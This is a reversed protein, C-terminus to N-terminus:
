HATFPHRNAFFTKKLINDERKLLTVRVKRECRIGFNVCGLYFLFINGILNSRFKM